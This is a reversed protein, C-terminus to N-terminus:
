KPIPGRDHRIDLRRASSHGRRFIQSKVGRLAVVFAQRPVHSEHLQDWHERSLEDARAAIGPPPQVPSPNHDVLLNYVGLRVM